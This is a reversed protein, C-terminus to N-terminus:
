EGERKPGQLVDWKMITGETECVPNPLRGGGTEEWQRDQTLEGLEEM